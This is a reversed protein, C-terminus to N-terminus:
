PTPTLTPSLTLTPQSEGESLVEKVTSNLQDLIDGIAPPKGSNAYMIPAQYNWWFSDQVINSVTGWEAAAPAPIAEGIWATTKQWAPHQSGYDALATLASNTLPYSGIAKVMSVQNQTSLLWKIFLWSAMQETLNSSFMGYSQGFTYVVPTGGKGPFPFVTWDDPAALRQNTSDQTVTDEVTGTYILALRRAFYEYPDPNSAVWACNQSTLDRLFTLVSESVTTHFQFDSLDADPLDSFGFAKLWSWDVLPTTNIIWGGFGDNIRTADKMNAQAAACVQTKFEDPTTPYSEFGLSQAWSDNYFMVIGSRYAPVGLRQGVVMDQQWFVPFFDATEQATMGTSPLNVYSTLDVLQGTAQQWLNLTDASAIVVDPLQEGTQIASNVAGNLIDQGGYGTLEVFIGWQNQQNFENVLNSVTQDLAGTWPYWFRVHVGKLAATDVSINPTATFNPAPTAPPRSSPTFTAPTSTQLGGSATPQCAAAMLGLIILAVLFSHNIKM